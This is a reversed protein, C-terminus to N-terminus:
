TGTREKAYGERGSQREFDLMYAYLKEVLPADGFAKAVACVSMLGRYFYNWADYVHEQVRPTGLMGNLYYKPPNGICMDMICMSSAHVFGSYATSIIEEVPISSPEKHLIRRMYANIKKRPVLNPKQFRDSYSGLKLIPDDYFAKLYQEHRDTIEDNTIAAVLFFIDEHIEDLTRQLVGQEQVFGHLLLLDIANLGSVYRALKQVLAQPIGRESYRLVFSEHHPVPEPPAIQGELRRFADTMVGLSELYVSRMTASM